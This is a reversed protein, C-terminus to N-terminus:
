RVGTMTLANMQVAATVNLMKQVYVVLLAVDRLERKM